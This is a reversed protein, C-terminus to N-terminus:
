LIHVRVGIWGLRCICKLDFTSVSMKWYVFVWGVGRCGTMANSVINLSGNKVRVDKVKNEKEAGRGKHFCSSPSTCCSQLLPSSLFAFVIDVIYLGPSLSHCVKWRRGSLILIIVGEVQNKWGCWAFQRRNKTFNLLIQWGQYKWCNLQSITCLKICCQFRFGCRFIRELKWSAISAKLQLSLNNWM